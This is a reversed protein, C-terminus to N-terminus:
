FYYTHNVGTVVGELPDVGPNECVCSLVFDAMQLQEESAYYGRGCISVDYKDPQSSDKPLIHIELNDSIITIETLYLPMVSGKPTTWTGIEKYRSYLITSDENYFSLFRYTADHWTMDFSDEVYFANIWKCTINRAGYDYITTDEPKVFMSIDNYSHFELDGIMFGYSGYGINRGDEVSTVSQTEEDSSEETEELSEEQADEESTETTETTSSSETTSATATEETTESIEATESTVSQSTTETGVTTDTAATDCGSLLMGAIVLSVIINKKRNSDMKIGM